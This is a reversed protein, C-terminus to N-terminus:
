GAKPKRFVFIPEYKRLVGNVTCYNKAKPMGENTISTAGSLPMKLKREYELGFELMADVSDKELPFFKGKISIDAINWLVYGGPKLYTACTKLMKRLFGERWEAYTPFKKASQTEEDSYIEACFYPPSTLVSDIKGRYRQFEPLKDVVEAGVPFIEFTAQYKQGVCGCYLERLVEYRSRADGLWNSSNPETGLYHIPRDGAAALAGLM